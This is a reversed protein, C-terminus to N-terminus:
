KRLPLSIIIRTGKGEESELEMRGHHLEIINKVIFLGLGSGDPKVRIANSARFFKTFIKKKEEEPIGIGNDEIAISVFGDKEGTSVSIRGNDPTYNAANNLLNTFIMALKSKDAMILPPNGSVRTELKINKSKVIDELGKIAELLLPKIDCSELDLNLGLEEIRSVNLLENITVILKENSIHGMELYHRQEDSVAGVENRLFLDFIWKISSLPTRLQHAAVSIFESKSRDLEKEKTLDYFIKLTGLSEQNDSLVEATQAKYYKQRSGEQIFIEKKGGPADALSIDGPGDGTIISKLEANKYNVATISKGLDSKKFGFVKKAAQNIIKLRNKGDIFIVPDIFNSLIASIKDKEINLNEAYTLSDQYFLANKLSAAIQPAVVRFVAQDEENYIDDSEKGGLAILGLTKGEFFFPLLLIIGIKKFEQVLENEISIDSQELNDILLLGKKFIAPDLRKILRQLSFRESRGFGPAYEVSFGKERSRMLLLGFRKQFFAQYFSEEIHKFIKEIELTSSIKASLSAVLNEFDYHSAFFYKQSLRRYFGSIGPYALASSAVLFTDLWFGAYGFLHFALYRCGALLLMISTISIVLVTSRKLALRIDMLNHKVISYGIILPFLTFLINTWPIIPIDYWLFFNSCASLYGVFSAILLYRIKLKEMGGTHRFRQFLLAVSSIALVSINLLYFPYLIGPKPWFAFIDRFPEVSRVMLPSFSFCLFFFAQAYSYYLLFKKKLSIELYELVWHLHFVGMFISGITLIRAWFLATERDQFQLMWIFYGFAWVFISITILFYLRNVSKKNDKSLVLFGLFLSILANLLGTIALFTQM